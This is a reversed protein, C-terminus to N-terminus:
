REFLENVREIHSAKEASELFSAEFSNKLLTRADAATLPLAAFADRFNRNVSGGFYAPDDSSVTAKLGAALLEPLNHHSLTDFV